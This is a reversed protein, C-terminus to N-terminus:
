VELAIDSGDGAFSKASVCSARMMAELTIGSGNGAFPTPLSDNYIFDDSLDVTKQLIARQFPVIQVYELSRNTADYVFDLSIDTM